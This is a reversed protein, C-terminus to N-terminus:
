RKPSLRVTTGDIEFQVGNPEFMSQFLEEATLAKAGLEIPEDLRVDAAKLEDEDYDFTFGSQQELTKMFAVLPARAVSFSFTVVKPGRPAEGNRPRFREPYLLREVQEIQEVTGEVAVRRSSVRYAVAPSLAELKSKMEAAAGARITFQRSLRPADPVPVIRIRSRDEAWEFSLNFQALVLMLVQAASASPLDAAAWLDHPVVEVSDIQLGYRSGIDLLLTRPTTLDDWAFDERAMLELGRKTKGSVGTANRDPLLSDSALEVLTRLRFATASPGVYILNDFVSIEAGVESAIVGLLSRLSVNKVQLSCLQGPDIRRDLLIAIETSESLKQLGVRLSQGQWALGMQRSLADTLTQGTLFSRDGTSDIRDNLISKDEAQAAGAPQLILGIAVVFQLVRLFQRVRVTREGPRIRNARRNTLHLPTM